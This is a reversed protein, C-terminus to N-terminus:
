RKLIAFGVYFLLDAAKAARYKVTRLVRIERLGGGDARSRIKSADAGGSPKSPYGAPPRLLESAQGEAQRHRFPWGIGAVRPIITSTVAESGPAGNAARRAFSSFSRRLAANVSTPTLFFQVINLPRVRECITKGSFGGRPVAAQKAPPQRCSGVAARNGRKRPEIM